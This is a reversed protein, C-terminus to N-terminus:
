EKIFETNSFLLQVTYNAYGETQKTVIRLTQKGKVDISINFPATENTIEDKHYVLEEDVYISLYSVQDNAMDVSPYVTANFTTFKEDLNYFGFGSYDYVVAGDYINGYRDKVTDTTSSIRDSSILTLNMLTIPMTEKIDNYADTLSKNQSYEKQANEIIELAGDWDGGKTRSYADDIINKVKSNSLGSLKNQLESDNQLNVLGENLLKEASEYDRSEIFKDAKSIIDSRYADKAKEVGDSAEESKSNLALASKYNQLAGLYNGASYNQDAVALKNKYEESSVIKNRSESTVDTVEGANSALEEISNIINMAETYSLKNDAYDSAADDAADALKEITNKPLAKGAFESIYIQNAKSIDGSSIARNLKAQPRNYLSIGGVAILVVAVIACTIAIAKKSPKKKPLMEKIDQLNIETKPPTPPIFEGEISVGCYGCFIADEEIEKGCNPCYM